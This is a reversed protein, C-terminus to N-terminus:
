GTIISVNSLEKVYLYVSSRIAEADYFDLLFCSHLCRAM